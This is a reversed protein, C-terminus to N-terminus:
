VVVVQKALRTMFGIYVRSVSISRFAPGFSFINFSIGHNCSSKNEM